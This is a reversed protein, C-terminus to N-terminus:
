YLSITIFNAKNLNYNPFIDSIWNDFHLQIENSINNRSVWSQKTLKAIYKQTISGNTKYRYENLYNEVTINNFACFKSLGFAHQNKYKIHVFYKPSSGLAAKRLKPNDNFKIVSNAIDEITTAFTTKTM